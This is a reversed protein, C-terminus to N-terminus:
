HCPAGVLYRRKWDVNLTPNILRFAPFARSCRLEGARERILGGSIESKDIRGSTNILANNATIPSYLIGYKCTVSHVARYVRTTTQGIDEWKVRTCEIQRWFLQSTYSRAEFGKGFTSNFASARYNQFFFPRLKRM